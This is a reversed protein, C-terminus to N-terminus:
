APAIVTVTGSSGRYKLAGAEAYLIGGGTPSTTPAATRNALFIMPGSGGGYSGAGGVAFRGAVGAGAAGVWAHMVQSVANLMFQFEGTTNGSDVIPPSGARTELRINSQPASAALFAFDVLGLAVNEFLAGNLGSRNRLHMRTAGFSDGTQEIVLETAATTVKGTPDVIFVKTGVSNTVDLLDATQSAAGTLTM